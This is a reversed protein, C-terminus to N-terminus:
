WQSAAAASEGQIDRIWESLESRDVLRCRTSQALTKADTTFYRNTVVMAQTCDYHAMAAVVDSVAQRGVASAYRKAQVALVDSARRAVIDVGFDGSAKTVQAAYGQHRLLSAVYYEFQSGSM